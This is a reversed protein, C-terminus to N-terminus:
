WRFQGEAKKEVRESAWHPPAWAEPWLERNGQVTGKEGTLRVNTQLVPDNFKPNRQLFCDFVVNTSRHQRQRRAFEDDVWAKENRTQTRQVDYNESNKPQCIPLQLRIRPHWRPEEPDCEGWVRMDLSNTGWCSREVDAQTGFLCQNRGSNSKRGLAWPLVGTVRGSM